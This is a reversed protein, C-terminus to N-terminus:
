YPATPVLRQVEAAESAGDGGSPAGAKKLLVACERRTFTTDPEM